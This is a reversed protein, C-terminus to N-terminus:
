KREMIADRIEPDGYAEAVQASLAREDRLAQAIKDSLIPLYKSSVIKAAKKDAWDLDTM